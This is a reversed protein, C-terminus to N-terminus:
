LARVGALWLEEGFGEDRLDVLKGTVIVARDAFSALLPEVHAAYVDISGEPVELAYSLAM